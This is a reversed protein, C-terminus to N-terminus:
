LILVIRDGEFALFGDLEDNRADLAAGKTEGEAVSKVRFQRIIADALANVLGVPVGAGFFEKAANLAVEKCQVVRLQGSPVSQEKQGQQLHQGGSETLFFGIPKEHMGETLLQIQQLCGTLDEICCSPTGWQNNHSVAYQKCCEWIERAAQVTIKIEKKENM